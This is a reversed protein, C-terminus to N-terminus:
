IKASKTLNCSQCLLQLNKASTGGGRSVPIVHDFHLNEKSGCNVCCGQDRRWVEARVAEPIATRTTQEYPMPAPVTEFQLPMLPPSPRLASSNAKYQNILRMYARWIKAVQGAEPTGAASRIKKGCHVCQYHISRNNPSIDLLRMTFEHCHFCPQVLFNQRILPLLKQAKENAENAILPIRRKSEKGRLIPAVFILYLFGFFLVFVFVAGITAVFNHM